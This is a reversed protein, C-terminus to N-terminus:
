PPARVRLDPDKSGSLDLAIGAPTQPGDRVLDNRELPRERLDPDKSGSLDLAIGAPTQLGGGVLDNRRSLPVRLDPEKSGSLESMDWVLSGSYPYDAADNVIGAVVPNGWIYWAVREEDEDSRLAHDYFRPQWLRTGHTRRFQYATLQKFHKVFDILSTEPPTAVLLHVHDPMFCYAFVDAEYRAASTRLQTLSANVVSPDSFWPQKGATSLTLFFSHGEEYATPDMRIRKM